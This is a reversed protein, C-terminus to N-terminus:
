VLEFFNEFFLKFILISDAHTKFKNRQEKVESLSKFDSKNLAM